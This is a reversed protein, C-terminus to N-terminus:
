WEVSKDSDARNIYLFGRGPPIVVDTKRETGVVVTVTQGRITRTETKVDEYGWAGNAYTYIKPAGATPVVIEDGGPSAFATNLDLGVLSPSAVLNMGKALSVVKTATGDARGVLYIPKTVDKRTLLLGQGRTVSVVSADGAETTTDGVTIMPSWAKVGDKETLKWSDYNGTDSNYAKLMDDVDRNGLYVLSDVKVTTGDDDFAYWPVAIVTTEATSEVKLVGVSHAVDLEVSSGDKTLVEKVTFTKYGSEPLPVEPNTEEVGDVKYKAVAYGAPLTELASIGLESGTASTVAPTGKVM